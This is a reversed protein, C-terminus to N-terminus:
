LLPDSIKGIFIPIGSEVHRLILLFPRDFVITPPVSEAGFGVTTVAAGEAGKENIKLFTDHIVRTLYINGGANGVKSLQARNEDFAREMGMARLDKSIERKFKIEFKPLFLNLRSESIQTDILEQYRTTLSEFDNNSLYSNVSDEPLLFTMAYKGDKFYLDAASLDDGIYHHLAMDQNMMKVTPRRGDVFNFNRDATSEEPFPSAWDGIFYLANMLFMFEEDKIKDLVKPIRGNTKENAWGNIGELNFKDDHVDAQYFEELNSKFSPDIDFLGPNYFAAQASTLFTKDTADEEIIKLLKEFQVNIGSPFFDGVELASRMESLTEEEAGNSAMYLATEISLPSILINEESPDDDHIQLFTKFGFSLMSAQLDELSGQEEIAPEDPNATIPNTPDLTDDSCNSLVFCFFLSVVLRYM